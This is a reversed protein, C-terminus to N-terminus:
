HRREGRRRRTLRLAVIALSLMAASAGRGSGSGVDCACGGGASGSLGSSGSVGGTGASGAAGTIGATGTTGSAGSGSGAVGGSTGATGATGTAGSTGASGATGVTGGAGSGTGTMGGSGASADGGADIQGGTGTSGSGGAITGGAGGRGATGGIGGAGGRGAGGGAGGAGGAGSGGAGGTGGIEACSAADGNDCDFQVGDFPVVLIKSGGSNVASSNKDTDTVAFTFHTVHGNQEYVGPREMNHWTNVTGDTYRLWNSSSNTPSQTGEYALGTSTWGTTGNKSMIHYARQHNWYNYVVHFYGGSYWIVEDEAAGNDNNELNPLVSDTEVKYPGLVADSDMICGSRSTAWFRNGPGVTFTFNSSLTGCGSHGNTNTQLLGMLTWPGNASSANFMQGPVIEGVSLTYPNTGTPTVLATVNHGMNNGSQNKTYCNGQSVYPGMVNDSIAQMPISTGWGTSGGSPPGFGISHDWHSAYMHYKGDEGKLIKGDWYFNTQQQPGVGGSAGNDELGNAPDRPGVASAGWVTTSLKGVIPMPKFYNILPKSAAGAPSAALLLGTVVLRRKGAFCTM